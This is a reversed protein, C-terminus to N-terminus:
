HGGMAGGAGPTTNQTSTGSRRQVDQIFDSSNSQMADLQVRTLCIQSKQTRSGTYTDVRCFKEVGNVVTRTYGYPIPKEDTAAATGPTASNANASLASASAASGASTAPAQSACGALACCGMLFVLNTVRNM